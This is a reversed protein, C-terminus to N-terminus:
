PDGRRDAAASSPHDSLDAAADGEHATVARRADRGAAAREERRRGVVFLLSAITVAVLVFAFCGGFLVLYLSGAAM